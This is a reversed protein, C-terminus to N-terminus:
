DEIPRLEGLRTGCTGFAGIFQPHTAQLGTTTGFIGKPDPVGLGVIQVRPDAAMCLSTGENSAQTFELERM